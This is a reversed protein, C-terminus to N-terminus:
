DDMKKKMDENFKMAWEDYENKKKFYSMASTVFEEISAVIAWGIAILFLGNQCTIFGLILFVLVLIWYVLFM